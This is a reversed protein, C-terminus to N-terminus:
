SNTAAGAARPISGLREAGLVDEYFTLTAEPDAAYVHLHDFATIRM